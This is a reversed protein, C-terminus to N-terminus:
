PGSRMAHESLRSNLAAQRPIFLYFTRWELNSLGQTASILNCSLVPKSPNLRQNWSQFTAPQAACLRLSAPRKVDFRRKRNIKALQQFRAL